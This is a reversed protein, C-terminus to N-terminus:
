GLVRRAIRRERERGNCEPCSLVLDDLTERGYSEITLHYLEPEDTPEGCIRCRGKDREFVLKRLARLRPSRLEKAQARKRATPRRRQKLAVFPLQEIAERSLEAVEHPRPHGRVKLCRDCQYVLQIERFLARRRLQREGGCECPKTMM